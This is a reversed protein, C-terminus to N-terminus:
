NGVYKRWGQKTYGGSAGGKGDATVIGSIHIERAIVLSYTDVVYMLNTCYFRRCVFVNPLPGGGTYDFKLSFYDILNKNIFSDFLHYLTLPYSLIRSPTIISGPVSFSGM